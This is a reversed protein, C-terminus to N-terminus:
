VQKPDNNNTMKEPPMGVLRQYVLDSVSLMGSKTMYEPMTVYEDRGLSSFTPIIKMLVKDGEVYNKARFNYRVSNGEVYYTPIGSIIGVELVGYVVDANNDIPVFQVTQDKIPSIIRIGFNGGNLPSNLVIVPKPLLSYYEERGSDYQIEVTFPKTYPDLIAFNGGKINQGFVSQLLSEYASDIEKEVILPHYRSALDGVPEGGCLRRRVQEIYQDKKIM